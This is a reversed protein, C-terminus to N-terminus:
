WRTLANGGPQTLIVTSGQQQAGAPTTALALALGALRTLDAAQLRTMEVFSSAASFVVAARGPRSRVVCRRRPRRCAIAMLTREHKDDLYQVYRLWAM